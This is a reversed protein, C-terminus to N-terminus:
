RAVVRRLTAYGNRWSLTKRTVGALSRRDHVNAVAYTPDAWRAFSQLTNVARAVFSCQSSGQMDDRVEGAGESGAQANEGEMTDGEEETGM